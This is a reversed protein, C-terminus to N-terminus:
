RGTVDGFKVVTVAPFGTGRQCTSVCALVLAPGSIHVYQLVHVPTVSVPRTPPSLLMETEVLPQHCRWIGALSIKKVPFCM